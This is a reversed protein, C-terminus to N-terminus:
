ADRVDSQGGASRDTGEGIARLHSSPTVLNLATGGALYAAISQTAGVRSGSYKAKSASVMDHYDKLGTSKHQAPQQTIASADASDIKALDSGMRDVVQDVYSPSYWM